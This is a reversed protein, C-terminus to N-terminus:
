LLSVLHGRGSDRLDQNREEIALADNFVSHRPAGRLYEYDKAAEDFCSDCMRGEDGCRQDNDLLNACAKAERIEAHLLIRALKVNSRARQRLEAKLPANRESLADELDWRARELLRAIRESSM